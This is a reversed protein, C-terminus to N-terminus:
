DIKLDDLEYSSKVLKWSCSGVGEQIFLKFKAIDYDIYDDTEYTLERISINKIIPITLYYTNNDVNFYVCVGYENYGMWVIQDISKINSSIHSQLDELLIKYCSKPDSNGYKEKLEDGKPLPKEKRNLYDNIAQYFTVGYPIPYTTISHIECLLKEIMCQKTFKLKNLEKDTDNIISKITDITNITKSNYNLDNFIM